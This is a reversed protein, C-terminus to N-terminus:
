RSTQARFRSAARSKMSYRQRPRCRRCMPAPFWRYSCWNWGRRWVSWLRRTSSWRPGLQRLPDAEVRVSLGSRVWAAPLEVNFSMAESYRIADPVIAGSVVPLTAPGAMDITGLISAGNYGTLRVLPAPVNAQTSVVYARVWTEKGTVLRQRPDTVGQALAQAFELGTVNAVCGSGVVLSGGAVSSQSASDLTIAGCALAPASFVIETASKSTITAATSGVRVASVETLGTGTVTVPDGSANVRYVTNANVRIAPIM